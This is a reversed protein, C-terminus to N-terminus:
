HFSAQLLGLLLCAPLLLLTNLLLSHLSTLPCTLVPAAENMCPMMATAMIITTTMRFHTRHCSVFHNNRRKTQTQTSTHATETHAHQQTNVTARVYAAPHDTLAKRRSHQHALQKQITITDM